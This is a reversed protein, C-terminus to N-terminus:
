HTTTPPLNSPSRVVPFLGRYIGRLGEERVISATGHLLGHYRPQPRKADDILKTRRVHDFGWYTATPGFFFSLFLPPLCNAALTNFSPPFRVQDNGFTYCCVGGGDDRCGARGLSKTGRQSQGKHLDILSSRHASRDRDSQPAGCRPQPPLSRVDKDALAQKFKDYSLFRVGAKASNGVVLATCGAYLGRM